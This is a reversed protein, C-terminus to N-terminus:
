NGTFFVLYYMSLRLVSSAWVLMKLTTKRCSATAVFAEQTRENILWLLFNSVLNCVLSCQFGVFSLLILGVPERVSKSHKERQLARSLSAYYITLKHFQEQALFQKFVHLLQDHVISANAFLRKQVDIHYKTRSPVESLISRSLSNQSMRGHNASIKYAISSRSVLIIVLETNFM